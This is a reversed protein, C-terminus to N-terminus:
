GEPQGGVSRLRRRMADIEARLDKAWSRRDRGDAYKAEGFAVVACLERACLTRWISGVLSEDGSYSV